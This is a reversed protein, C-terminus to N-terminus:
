RVDIRSLQGTKGFLDQVAAIDMVALASGGASISGGVRPAVCGRRYRDHQAHRQRKRDM